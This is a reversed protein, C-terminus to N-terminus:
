RGTESLPSVAVPGAEAAPGTLRDFAGAPVARLATQLRKLPAQSERVMGTVPRNIDSLLLLAITFLALIVTASRRGRRGIMVYGLVMATVIAYLFLVAFIAGPIQANRAAKRRQDVAVVQNASDVLATSFDIGRISDFAPVTVTWLDVLMRQNDALLKEGEARDSTEALLIHNDLYRLLLDSYRSKHPEDLLQARLYLEEIAVADDLVLQRRSEFRDLVISFTFGILLGLLGLVSSVILGEQSDSRTSQFDPDRQEHRRRLLSGAMGAAFMVAFLLTGLLWLPILIVWDFM